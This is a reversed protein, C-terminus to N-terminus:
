RGIQASRNAELTELIQRVTSFHDAIGERAIVTAGVVWGSQERAVLSMWEERQTRNARRVEYEAFVAPLQRGGFSFSSRRTSLTRRGEQRREMQQAIAELLDEATEGAELSSVALVISLKDDPAHLVVGGEQFQARWNDPVLVTFHHTAVRGQGESPFPTPPACGSGLVTIILGFLVLQYTQAVRM